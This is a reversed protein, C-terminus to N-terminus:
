QEALMAAVALSQFVGIFLSKEYLSLFSIALMKFLYFIFHHPGCFFFFNYIYIVM